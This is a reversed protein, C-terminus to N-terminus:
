LHCGFWDLMLDLLEDWWRPRNFFHNAGEIVELKKPENATDYIWGANEVSVIRDVSGHIILLPQRIGEVIQRIDYRKLDVLFSVEMKERSELQEYGTEVIRRLKRDLEEKPPLPFEYPAALTAIVKIREDGSALVVMGGFSSGVAAVRSMDVDTSELFNLAARYDELRTTLTTVRFEGESKVEGKGCGRYNFRLTAFGEEFFKQTFFDWKGGDMSSEFGHSMVICLSGKGPSQFRGVIKHNESYFEVQREMIYGELYGELGKRM